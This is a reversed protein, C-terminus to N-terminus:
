APHEDIRRTLCRAIIRLWDASSLRVSRSFVDYHQKEIRHLVQEGGAITARIEWKLRGHLAKLLPRGRQFLTRTFEICEAMLTRFAGDARGRRLRAESVQCQAMVQRPLYIRGIALDTAVDQWFNTLQLASCIADSFPFLREQRYGGLWLVIRGVPNASYRCYRLLDEWSEPKLGELDMQFAHLLDDLWYVPLQFRQITQSLARLIPHNAPHTLSRHFAKRWNLLAELNQQRDALDDAYRAFAYVAAIHPRLARPLLWSAVPFNEYHRRALQLCFAYDSSHSTEPFRRPMAPSLAKM